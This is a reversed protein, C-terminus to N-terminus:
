LGLRLKWIRWEMITRGAKSFNCHNCAPVLNGIGHSGGRAIPLVHDITQAANHCYFCHSSYLRKLEKKSVEFTANNALRARRRQSKARVVEPNEAKYKRNRERLVEPHSERFRKKRLSEKELNNWYKIKSRLLESQRHERHYNKAYSPNTQRFKQNNAKVKDPYRERYLKGYNTAKDPNRLRYNKQQQACCPKCKSRTGLKGLKSPSFHNNPLFQNCNTCTKYQEM